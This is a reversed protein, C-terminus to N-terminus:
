QRAIVGPLRGSLMTTLNDVPKQSLERSSLTAVSGTLHARKQVGYAVVVIEDIQTSEIELNLDVKSKGAVSIEVSKYWVYSFVLIGTESIEIY